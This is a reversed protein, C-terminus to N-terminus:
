WRCFHNLWLVMGLHRSIWYSPSTAVSADGNAFSLGLDCNLGDHFSSIFATNGDASLTVHSGTLFLIAVQPAIIELLTPNALDSDLIHVGNSASSVFATNGDASLTVSQVGWADYSSILSPSAKNSIDIIDLGYNSKSFFATNGDASLTIGVASSGSADFTSILTPNTLDSVDIIKLLAKFNEAVFATKGDASLTLFM